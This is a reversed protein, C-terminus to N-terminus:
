DDVSDGVLGLRNNLKFRLRPLSDSPCESLSHDTNRTDSTMSRVQYENFDYTVASSLPARLTSRCCEGIETIVIGWEYSRM